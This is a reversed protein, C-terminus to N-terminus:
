NRGGAHGAGAERCVPRAPLFVAEEIITAIALAAKGDEGTVSPRKNKLIASIFDKLESNLQDFAAVKLEKSIGAEMMKATKTLLDAEYVSGGCAATIKRVKVDHVRSAEINAVVGNEFVIVAQAQDLKQSRINKGTANLFKIESGALGRALDIDHVMMDIVVSVDTIRDPFPSLRKIDMVDPKKGGLAKVIAMYAPNFREIHGVALVLGKEKAKNILIEAQDTTMSIPKEILVHCEAALAAMGVEFHTSTPTTISVADALKFLDHYDKFFPTDKQARSADIDSVGVIEADPINKYQKLHFGGMVGCGIVGVRLRKM